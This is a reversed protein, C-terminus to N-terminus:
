AWFLKPKNEGYMHIRDRHLVQMELLTLDAIFEM